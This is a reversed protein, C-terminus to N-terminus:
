QNEGLAGRGTFPGDVEGEESFDTPSAACAFCFSYEPLFISEFGLAVVLLAGEALITLKLKGEMFIPSIMAEWLVEHLNFFSHGLTSLFSSLTNPSCHALPANPQISGNM